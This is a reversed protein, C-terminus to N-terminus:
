PQRTLNWVPPLLIELLDFGAAATQQIAYLGSEPTWM